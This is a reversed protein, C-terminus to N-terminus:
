NIEELLKKLINVGEASLMGDSKYKKFFERTLVYPIDKMEIHQFFRINKLTQHTEEDFFVNMVKKREVKRAIKPRGAGVRETETTTIPHVPIEQPKERKSNALYIVDNFTDDEQQREIANLEEESYRKKGM